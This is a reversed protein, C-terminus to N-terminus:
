NELSPHQKRSDIFLAPCESKILTIMVYILLQTNECLPL